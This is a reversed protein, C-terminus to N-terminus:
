RLYVKGGVIQIKVSTSPSPIWDLSDEEIKEVKGYHAKVCNDFLKLKSSLPNFSLLKPLIDSWFSSAM